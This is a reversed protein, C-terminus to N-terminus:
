GLRERRNRQDARAPQLREVIGDLRQTYPQRGFLHRPEFLPSAGLGARGQRNECFATIPRFLIPLTSNYPRAHGVVARKSRGLSVRMFSLVRSRPAAAMPRSVDENAM